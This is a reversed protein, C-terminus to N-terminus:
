QNSPQNGKREEVAKKTYKLLWEVYKVDEAIDETTYKAEHFGWV